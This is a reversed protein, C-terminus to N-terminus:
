RAGEPTFTDIQPRVVVTYTDAIATNRHEGQVAQREPDNVVAMFSRLSPYAIFRVEDWERGDGMITGEVTFIAAAGGGHKQAVKFASSQYEEMGGKRGGEAFKLLHVVMIPGDENTPAHEVNDWNEYDVRYSSDLAVPQSGIVFTFDMGADKHIHRQQFDERNQMGLFAQRSPYKVVGIRHWKHDKGALQLEVDGFFPIEAGLEALIETPAYLDDAEQGSIGHSGDDYQAEAHYKMFNVMWVPGDDEPATTFMKMGYDRNVKGYKPKHPSM